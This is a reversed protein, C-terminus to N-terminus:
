AATQYLVGEKITVVQHYFCIRPKFTSKLISTHWIQQKHEEKNESFLAWENSM